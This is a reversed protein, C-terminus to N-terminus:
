PIKILKRLTKCNMTNIGVLIKLNFAGDSKTMQKAQFRTAEIIPIAKEKTEMEVIYRLTM